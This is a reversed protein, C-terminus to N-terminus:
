PPPALGRRWLRRVSGVLSSISLRSDFHRCSLTERDECRAFVLARRGLYARGRGWGGVRPKRGAVGRRDTLDDAEDPLDCGVVGGREDEALGAGALFDGRAGDMVQARPAIAREHRDVAAGDRGLKELGLEEAM